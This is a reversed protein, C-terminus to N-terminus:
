GRSLRAAPLLVERAHAALWPAGHRALWMAEEVAGPERDPLGEAHLVGVPLNASRLVQAAAAALMGHAAPTPHVRDVAWARRLQLAPVGGLDLLLVGGDSRATDVVADVVANVAAVRAQVERRLAPPLPLHRTPDHLRGLLVTAGCRLLGQVCADLDDAFRQEGFGVRSVDNLGILLTALHPRAEVARALQGARVDRVRAGAVALPLLEGGPLAAALRAPWTRAPDVSLGVGEGCSTSDGLAALLVTM